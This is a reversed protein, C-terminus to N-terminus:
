PMLESSDILTAAAIAAPFGQMALGDSIASAFLDADRFPPSKMFLFGTAM